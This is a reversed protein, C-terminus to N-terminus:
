KEDLPPLAAEIEPVIASPDAKAVPYGKTWAVSGDSVKIIEVTLLPASGAPAEIGGVLVYNSHSGRGREAAAAADLAPLPEKSLGVEGHHSISLRGYLLAFTTDAVKEAAADGAPAAFPVALLLNSDSTDEDVAGAVDRAIDAGLKTIDERNASGQYKGAIAELKRAAEPTLAHVTTTRERACGRGLVFTIIWLSILVRGWWPLRKFLSRASKLAWGVVHVWFRVRQGPEERPFEPIAPREPAPRPVVVRPAARRPAPTEVPAGAALRTCLASLAANPLGRPVKLWQVTLFREPVKATAQDTADVVVPLLFTHDDDMDLSREVALRWERRFYGERRADTQASIVAMFFDCERIQRRIKKDWADGGALENEDYWVDLGSSAMADRISSAAPRDESAYSLFVSPRPPSPDTEGTGPMADVFTPGLSCLTM